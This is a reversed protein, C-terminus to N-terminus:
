RLKERLEEEVKRDLDRKTLTERKDYERKGTGLAIELKVLGRKTYCATPVITLNKQSLKGLLSLIQNKRLLLKRTKKPDYGRIDAQQYPPIFANILFAENGIIKVFSDGLEIRGSKISKVEGGSLVIGAELKEGLKYEYHAKKNIIKM